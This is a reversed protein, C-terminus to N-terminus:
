GTSGQYGMHNGPYWLLIGGLLSNFTAEGVASGVITWCPGGGFFIVLVFILDWGRSNLLMSICISESVGLGTKWVHVQGVLRKASPRGPFRSEKLSLFAWRRFQVWLEKMEGNNRPM